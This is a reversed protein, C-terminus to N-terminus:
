DQSCQFIGKERLAIKGQQEQFFCWESDKFYLPQQYAVMLAFFFLINTLVEEAVM